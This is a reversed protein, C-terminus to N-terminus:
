HTKVKLELSDQEGRISLLLEEDEFPLVFRYEEEEKPTFFIRYPEAAPVAGAGSSKQPVPSVAIDVAGTYPKSNQAQAKKKLVVITTGEFKVATVSLANGGLSQSDGSRTYISTFISMATLLLISVFLLARPKSSILPRLLSFKVPGTNEYLARVSPSAKELRRERSYHYIVGDEANKKETLPMGQNPRSPRPGDRKEGNKEDNDGM